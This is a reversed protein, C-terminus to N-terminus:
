CHAHSQDTFLQLQVTASSSELESERELYSNRHRTVFHKSSNVDPWSKITPCIIEPYIVSAEGEAHIQYLAGLVKRLVVSLDGFPCLDKSKPLSSM